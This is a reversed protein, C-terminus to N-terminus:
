EVRKQKKKEKFPFLYHLLFFTIIGTLATVTGIFLGMKIEYMM